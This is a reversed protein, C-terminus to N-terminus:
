GHTMEGIGGEGRKITQAAFTTWEVGKDAHDGFSDRGSDRSLSTPAHKAKGHTRANDTIDFELSPRKEPIIGTAFSIAIGPVIVTVCYVATALPM